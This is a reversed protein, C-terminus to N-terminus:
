KSVSLSSHSAVSAGRRNEILINDDECWVQLVAAVRYGNQSTPHYVWVGPGNQSTPHYVWVGPWYALTVSPFASLTQDRSGQRAASLGQFIGDGPEGNFLM